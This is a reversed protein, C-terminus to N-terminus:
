ISEFPINNKKLLDQLYEIQSSLQENFSTLTKNSSSLEKNSSALENNFSKLQINKETLSDLKPQYYANAEMRTKEIIEESSTGFLNLLGECVMPSEGKTATISNTLQNLYRVYIDQNQHNQYDTALKNFLTNNQLKETLCRLYLNEEPPLESTVIIQSRFTEKNIYYVGPSSKEVILNREKILHLMLKRPYHMCLFTLTVDKSTYQNTSGTQNIFLGAYGITKYYSDTGISSGLGKIEFLNFTSFIRAINKPITQEFLKKIVLLDIRYNNKGLIYESQFELLHAYDRLEIQIACSAAEHWNVHHKTSKNGKGKELSVPSTTAKHSM